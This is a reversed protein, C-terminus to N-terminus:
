GHNSAKERHEIEKKWTDYIEDSWLSKIWDTVDHIDQDSLKDKWGPMNGAGPQSGDRIMGTLTQTSHHWAHATDDLPPPPFKGDAGRNRWDPAGEGNKGHCNACHARYLSEGHKIKGPDLNRGALNRPVSAASASPSESVSLPPLTSAVSATAPVVNGTQEAQAATSPQAAAPTAPNKPEGSQGCGALTVVLLIVTLSYANSM